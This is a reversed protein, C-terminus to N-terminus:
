KETKPNKLGHIREEIKWGEKFGEQWQTVENYSRNCHKAEILSEMCAALKTGSSNATSFAKRGEELGEEYPMKEEVVGDQVPNAETKNQENSKELEIEEEALQTELDEVSETTNFAEMLTDPVGTEKLAKTYSVLNDEVTEPSVEDSDICMAFSSEAEFLKENKYKETGDATVHSQFAERISELNEKTNNEIFSDIAEVLRTYTKQFNNNLEQEILLKKATSIDDVGNNFYFNFVNKLNSM